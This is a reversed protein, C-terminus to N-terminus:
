NITIRLLVILGSVSELGIIAGSMYLKRVTLAYLGTYLGQLLGPSTSM